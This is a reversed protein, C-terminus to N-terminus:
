WLMAFLQKTKEAKSTRDTALVEQAVDQLRRGENKALMERLEKDNTANGSTSNKKKKEETEIPASVVQQPQSLAAQLAQATHNADFPQPPVGAIAGPHHSPQGPQGSEVSYTMLRHVSDASISDQQSAHQAAQLLAPELPAYSQQPQQHYQAPFNTPHSSQQGYQVQFDHSQDHQDYSHVSTTSARSLPRNSRTSISTNSHSRHAMPHAMITGIRM